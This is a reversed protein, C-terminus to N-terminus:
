INEHYLYKLEDKLPRNKRIYKKIAGETNQILTFGRLFNIVICLMVNSPNNIKDVELFQVKKFLSDIKTRCKMM